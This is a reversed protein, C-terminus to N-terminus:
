STFFVSSTSTSTSIDLDSFNKEFKLFLSCSGEIQNTFYNASNSYFIHGSQNTLLNKDINHYINLSNGNFGRNFFLIWRSEQFNLEIGEEEWVFSDTMDLSYKKNLESGEYIMKSITLEVKGFKTFDEKSVNLSESVCRNLDNQSPMPVTDLAKSFDEDTSDFITSSFFKLICINNESQYIHWSNDRNINDLNLPTQSDISLDFFENNELNYKISFNLFVLNENKSTIIDSTFISNESLDEEVDDEEFSEAFSELVELIESDPSNSPATLGKKDSIWKLKLVRDNFSNLFSEGDFFWEGSGKSEVSRIFFPGSFYKITNNIFVYFIHFERYFEDNKFEINELSFFPPSENKLHSTSQILEYEFPTVKKWVDDGQNNSFGILEPFTKFDNIRWVSFKLRCDKNDPLGPFGIESLNFTETNSNEEHFTFICKKNFDQSIWKSNGPVNKIFSKLEGWKLNIKDFEIKWFFYNNM